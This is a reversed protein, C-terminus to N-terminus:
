KEKEEELKKKAYDVLVSRAKMYRFKAISNEFSMDNSDYPDLKSKTSDVISIAEEIPMDVAAIKLAGGLAIFFEGTGMGSSKEEDLEMHDGCNQCYYPLHDTVFNEFCGIFRYGCKPCIYFGDPGLVWKTKM